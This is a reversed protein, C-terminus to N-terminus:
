ETPGTLKIEKWDRFFGWLVDDAGSEFKVENVCAMRRDVADVIGQLRKIEDAARECATSTKLLTAKSSGRLDHMKIVADSRRRAGSLVDLIDVM